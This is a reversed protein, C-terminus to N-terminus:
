ARCGALSLSVNDLRQKSDGGFTLSQLGSPVSVNDLSQNFASGFTLSQLGSPLSVNDLSQNFRLGFTLNKLGSPLSATYLSGHVVCWYASQFAVTQRGATQDNVTVAFWKRQLIAHRAESCSCALENLSHLKGTGDFYVPWGVTNTFVRLFLAM